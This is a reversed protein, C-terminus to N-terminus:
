TPQSKRQRAPSETQSEPEKAVPITPLSFSHGLDPVQHGKFYIRWDVKPSITIRRESM